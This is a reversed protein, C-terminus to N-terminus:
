SAAFYRDADIWGAARVAACWEREIATAGVMLVTDPPLGRNRLVDLLRGRTASWTDTFAPARAAWDLPEPVTVAVPAHVMVGRQAAVGALKAKAAQDLEARRLMGLASSSFLLAAVDRGTGARISAYTQVDLGLARARRVRVRVVEIPVREGTLARRAKRWLHLRGAYGNPDFGSNHGIGPTM